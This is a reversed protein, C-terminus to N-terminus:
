QVVLNLGAKGQEDYTILRCDVLQKGLAPNAQLEAFLHHFLDLLTNGKVM